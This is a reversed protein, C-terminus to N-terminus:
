KLKHRISALISDSLEKSPLKVWHQSTDEAPFTYRWRDYDEKTIESNRLKESQESWTLLHKSINESLLNHIINAIISNPCIQIPRVSLNM